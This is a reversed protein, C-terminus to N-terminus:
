FSSPSPSPVPLGLDGLQALRDLLGLHRLLDLLLRQLLQRPELAHGLRAGLM